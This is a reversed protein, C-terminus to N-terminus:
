GRRFAEWLLGGFYHFTTLRLGTVLCSDGVSPKGFYGGLLSVDDFTDRDSLLQGRRFAEWLSRGFYHFTTLLLGTVLCSDGVSPKGFYGGLYHFTILLLGTVFCSDGVSPRGFYHFVTLLPGAVLCSDGVSPKWFFLTLVFFSAPFSPFLLLM